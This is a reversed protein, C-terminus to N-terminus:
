ISLHSMMPFKQNTLKNKHNKLILTTLKERDRKPLSRDLKFSFTQNLNIEKLLEIVMGIYIDNYHNEKLLKKNKNQYQNKDMVITYAKFDLKNLNTLALEIFGDNHKYFKIESTIKLKKIYKRQLKTKISKLKLNEKDTIILISIVFINANKDGLVGSEDLYIQIRSM